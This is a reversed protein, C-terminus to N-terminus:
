DAWTHLFLLVISFFFFKSGHRVRVRSRWIVTFYIRVLKAAKAAKEENKIREKEQNRKIRRLQEQIRRKEKKMEEKAAEDLTAFNRIFEEGKTERIRVYTEVIIPRKVFEHRTYEKGNANRYTRTIKLIKPPGVDEDDKKDDKKKTVDESSGGDMLMKQLNKREREERETIIQSSSKKNQLMAELSKGLDDLDGGIDDEDESSDAEDSSLIEDSALVKNQTEFIRQCEERYREQHEAISHRHSISIFILSTNSNSLGVFFSGFYGLIVSIPWFM